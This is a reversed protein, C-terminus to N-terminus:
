HVEDHLVINKKGSNESTKKPKSMLKRLTKPTKHTVAIRQPQLLKTTIESEEKNYLLTIKRNSKTRRNTEKNMGYM